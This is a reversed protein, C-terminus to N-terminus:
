DRRYFVHNGIAIMMEVEKSWSPSVYTAHFYNSGKTFDKIDQTMLLFAIDRALNVADSNPLVDSKGDCYWSFQCKNRIINDNSDKNAQRIVGCITNPWRPDKVRNLTVLGVALQGIISEGQAEFYINQTLCDLQKGFDALSPQVYLTLSMVASVM